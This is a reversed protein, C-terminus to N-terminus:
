AMMFELDCRLGRALRRAGMQGYIQFSGFPLPNHGVQDITCDFCGLKTRLNPLAEIMEIMQTALEGNNLPRNTGATEEEAMRQSYDSCSAPNVGMFTVFQPKIENLVETTSCVHDEYFKMGGLGPMVMVSTRVRSRRVESAAALIDDQTCGKNVYDLVATSGSEVGWYVLDLGYGSGVYFLDNLGKYGKRRISQTRGYLAIRKPFRGTNFGFKRGTYRIAEVLKKKQVNLADGGGIFTRKLRKVQRGGEKAGDWDRVREWVADVHEKYGGLSKQGAKVGEYGDCYTCRAWNCGTTLEFRIVHPLRESPPSFMDRSTYLRRDSYLKDLNEALEEKAM